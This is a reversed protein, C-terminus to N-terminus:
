RFLSPFDKKRGVAEILLKAKDRDQRVLAGQAHVNETKPDFPNVATEPEGYVTDESFMGAGVKAMAAFLAANTVVAKGDPGKVVAGIKEADLGLQRMSRQALQLNRSFSPGDMKGWAEILESKADTVSKSLAANAEETMKAGSARAFEVFQDHLAVAAENPLGAKHATQRFWGAFEANYTPLDTPAKFTYEDATKPVPKAEPRQSLKTELERHSKLQADPDTWNKTKAYALNDPDKLVKSYWADESGTSASGSGSGAANGGANGVNGTDAAGNTNGGQPAGAASGQTLTVGEM